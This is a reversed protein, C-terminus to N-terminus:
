PNHSPSHRCLMLVDIYGRGRTKGNLEAISHPSTEGEKTGLVFFRYGLDELRQLLSAPDTGFLGM